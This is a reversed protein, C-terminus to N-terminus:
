MTVVWRLRFDREGEVNAEVTRDECGDRLLERLQGCLFGRVGPGRRRRPSGRDRGSWVLM